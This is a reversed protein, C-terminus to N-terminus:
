EYIVVYRGSVWGEEGDEYEIKVWGDDSREIFPFSKGVDVLAVENDEFSTPESRVRLWGTGTEIVTVYPLVLDASGTAENEGEEEVAEQKEKPSASPSSEKEEEVGLVVSKDKALKASVLMRHGVSAKFPVLMEKYGTVQLTLEHSGASLRESGIPSFGLPNNDLKVVANDPITVVAVEVAEKNGLPELTMVAHNSEEDNEGFEKIVATLLRPSLIIRTQWSLSEDGEPSLRLEYEGPKINDSYFPTSGVHEDNLYVLLTKESKVDLASRKSGGFPLSCAGLMVALVLLLLQQKMPRFGDYCSWRKKM